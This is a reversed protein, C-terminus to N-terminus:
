MSITVSNGEISYKLGHLHSIVKIIFELNDKKLFTGTFLKEEIGPAKEYNITVGFTEEIRRFVDKLQGNKFLLKNEEKEPENKGASKVVTKNEKRGPNHLLSYHIFQGSNVVLEDGPRLVVFEHDGTKYQPGVKVRGEMLAVSVQQNDKVTVLFETGLATTSIGAAYVTFPRSPDKSVKFKAKGKLYLERKDGEFVPLYHLSSNPYVSVLSNDSLRVQMVQETKNEMKELEQTSNTPQTAATTGEAMPMGKGTFLKVGAFIIIGILSAAVACRAFSRTIFVYKSPKYAERICQLIRESVTIGLPKKNDALWDTLPICQELEEPHEKFYAQVVEAEAETCQDKLFKEILKRDPKM